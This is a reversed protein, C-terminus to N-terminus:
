NFLVKLGSLCCCLCTSCLVGVFFKCYPVIYRDSCNSTRRLGSPTRPYVSSGVEFGNRGFFEDDATNHVVVRLVLPHVSVTVHYCWRKGPRSATITINLILRSSPERNSFRRTIKPSPSCKMPSPSVRPPKMGQQSSSPFTKGGKVRAAARM